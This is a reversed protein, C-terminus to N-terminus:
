EFPIHTHTHATHGLFQHCHLYLNRLEHFNHQNHYMGFSIVTNIHRHRHNKHEVDNMSFVFTQVATISGTCAIADHLRESAYRVQFSILVDNYWVCM